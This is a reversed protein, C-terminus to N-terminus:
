RRLDQNLNFCSRLVIYYAIVDHNHTFNDFHGIAKMAEPLKMYETQYNVLLRMLM